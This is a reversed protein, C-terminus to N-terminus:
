NVTVTETATTAAGNDDTVTLTVQYTGPEEYEAVVIVRNEVMRGNGLNWLYGRIKGDPDQCSATLRVQKPRSSPSEAIRCVPPKNAVVTMPFADEATQDLRTRIRLTVQYDGPETLQLVGIMTSSAVTGNVLWEYTTIKDNKPGGTVTPRLKVTLPAKWFRNSPTIAVDLSYPKAETVTVTDTLTQSHGGQDSVTVRVAYTGPAGYVKAISSRTTTQAQGDGFTWDFRFVGGPATRTNGDVKFVVTYPAAPDKDGRRTLQFAPFTYSLVPVAVTASAIEESSVQGEPIARVKFVLTGGNTNPTYTLTPGEGTTQDPLTWEIRIAGTRADQPKATATLTLPFGQVANRPARVTLKPAPLSTVTITTQALDSEADPDGNAEVIVAKAQIPLIGVADPTLNVLPGIAPQGNILWRIEVTGNLPGTPVSAQGTVSIATNRVVRSPVTLRLVPKNWGVVQVTTQASAASAPDEQLSARVEVVKPGITPWSVSMRKSDASVTSTGDTVWRFTPTGYDSNVVASCAAPQRKGVPTPCTVQATVTPVQVQITATLPGATVTPDELLSVLVSVTVPDATRPKVTASAGNGAVQTLDPTATWQYRLTGMEASATLSCDGPQGRFLQTPCVLSSATPPTLSQYQFTVDTIVPSATADPTAALSAAVQVPGAAQAGLATFTAGTLDSTTMGRTPLETLGSLAQWTGAGAIKWTAGGDVSVAWRVDTGSPISATPTIRQVVPTGAPGRYMPSVVPSGSAAYQHASRVVTVCNWMTADACDVDAVLVAGTTAPDPTLAGNPFGAQLPLALSRLFRTTGADYVDIVSSTGSYDVAWVQGNFAAIGNFSSSNNGTKTRTVSSLLALTTADRVEIPTTAIWLHNQNDLAVPATLFSGPVPGPPESWQMGTWKIWRTYAYSAGSCSTYTTATMVSLQAYIATGIQVTNAIQNIANGRLGGGTVQCTPFSWGNKQLDLETAGVLDLATNLRYQKLRIVPGQGEVVSVTNGDMSVVGTPATVAETMADSCATTVGGNGPPACTPAGSGPTLYLGRWSVLGSSSGGDAFYVKLTDNANISMTGVLVWKLSTGVLPDIPLTLTAETRANKVLISMGNANASGYIWVNYTGTQVPVVTTAAKTEPMWSVNQWHRVHTAQGYSIGGPGCSGNTLNNSFAWEATVCDYNYTGGGVTSPSVVVNSFDRADKYYGVTSTPTTTRPDLYVDIQGSPRVSLIRNALTGANCFLWIRGDNTSAVSPAVGTCGSTTGTSISVPTGVTPRLPTAELLSPRWRWVTNGDASTVLQSAGAVGSPAADAGRSLVTEYTLALQNGAQVTSPRTWASLDATVSATAARGDGVEDLLGVLSGGLLIITRVLVSSRRRRYMAIGTRRKTPNREPRALRNRESVM